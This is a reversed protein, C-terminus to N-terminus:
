VQRIGGSADKLIRRPVTSPNPSDIFELAAPQRPKAKTSADLREAVAINVWGIVDHQGPVTAHIRCCAIYETRNMFILFAILYAYVNPVKRVPM